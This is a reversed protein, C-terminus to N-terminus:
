KACDVLCFLQELQMKVVVFSRIEAKSQPLNSHRGPIQNKNGEERENEKASGKKKCIHRECELEFSM